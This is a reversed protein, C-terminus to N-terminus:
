SQWPSCQFRRLALGSGRAMWGLSCLSLVPLPCAARLQKNVCLLCFGSYISGASSTLSYSELGRARFCRVSYFRALGFYCQWIACFSKWYFCLYVVSCSPRMSSAKARPPSSPRSLSRFAAALPLYGNVRPHGFPAVWRFRNRYGNISPPSRLSSFCRLVQLFLFYVRNGWYLRDFPSSGLGGANCLASPTTPGSLPQQFALPLAHFPAGCRTLAGYAFGSSVPAAGSYAPVRPIGTSDVPVM